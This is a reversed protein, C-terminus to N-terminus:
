IITLKNLLKNSETVNNFSQIAVSRGKNGIHNIKDPNTVLFTIAKVLSSLSEPEVIVADRLNTLYQSVDGVNSVIVARGTALYEALKSPFGANAAGSNDRIVCFIDCSNLLDQYENSPVFGKYTIRDTFKSSKVLGMFENFDRPNEGKGTLILKLNHHEECVEEFAKLLLDLGDKKGFSGGYFLTTAEKKSFSSKKFASINMTVPISLVKDRSTYSLLLNELHSSIM